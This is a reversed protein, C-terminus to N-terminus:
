YSNLFNKTNFLFSKLNIKNSKIVNIHQQKKRAQSNRRLFSPGTEREEAKDFFLARQLLM